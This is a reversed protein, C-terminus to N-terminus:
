AGFAWRQFLTLLIPMIQIFIEKMGGPGTAARRNCCAELRDALEEDSANSFQGAAEALTTRGRAARAETPDDPIFNIPYGLAYWACDIARKRGVGNTGRGYQIVTQVEDLPLDTPHHYEEGM